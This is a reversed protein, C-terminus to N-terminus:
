LFESRWKNFGVLTRLAYNTAKSASIDLSGAPRSSFPYKATGRKLSKERSATLLFSTAKSENKNM